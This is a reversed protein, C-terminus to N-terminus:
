ISISRSEISGTICVRVGISLFPDAGHTVQNRKGLVTIDRDHRDVIRRDVREAGAHGLPDNGVHLGRRGIGRDFRDHQDAAAFGKDRPGVDFLEGLDPRPRLLPARTQMRHQRDDFVARLRHDARNVARREAATELQRLGAVVADGNRIRLDALRFHLEPQNRATCPCLVQRAQRAHDTRSLQARDAIRNRGLLGVFPADDILEDFAIQQGAGHFVGAALCAFRRPFCAVDLSRKPSGAVIAVPM